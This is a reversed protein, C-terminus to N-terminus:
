RCLWLFTDSSKMLYEKNAAIYFFMLSNFPNNKIFCLTYSRVPTSTRGAHMMLSCGTSLVRVNMCVNTAGWPLNPMVYAGAHDTLIGAFKITTARDRRPFRWWGTKVHQCGTWTCWQCNREGRATDYFITQRIASKHRCDVCKRAAHRSSTRQTLEVYISWRCNSPTYRHSTCDITHLINLWLHLLKSFTVHKM